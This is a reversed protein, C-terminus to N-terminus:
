LNRPDAGRRPGRAPPHERTTESQAPPNPARVSPSTTPMVPVATRRCSSRKSSRRTPQHGNVEALFRAITDTGVAVDVTALSEHTLRPSAGEQRVEIIGEKMPM